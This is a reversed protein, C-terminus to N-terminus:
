KHATKRTAAAKGRGKASRAKKTSRKIAPKRARKAPARKAPAQKARPKARRAPSKKARKVARREAREARQREEPTDVLPAPPTTEWPAGGHQAQWRHETAQQQGFAHKQADQAINEGQRERGAVKYHAPNVNIRRSM